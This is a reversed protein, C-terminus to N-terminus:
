EKQLYLFIRGLEVPIIFVDSPKIKSGPVDTWEDLPYEVVREQFSHGASTRTRELMMFRALIEVDFTWNVRFPLSFVKALADTKRFLKAGYQTDYVAIGLIFSAATAFFRGIYHRLENRQINRGLLKVRSGMVVDVNNTDLINLFVKVTRLPTALDADWYGIYSFDGKFATLFGQRVAEAKGSNVGLDVCQIGAPNASALDKLVDSTNDRSGDNVFIFTVDEEKETYKLFADGKLRNAENYCPVIMATKNNM